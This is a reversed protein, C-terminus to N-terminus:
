KRRRRIAWAGLTVFLFGVYILRGALHGQQALTCGGTNPSVSGDPPLDCADGKDDEDSDLQDSNPITPCNDDKNVVGDGDMDGTPDIDCVDGTGNGDTDKQDPNATTACNDNKDNFGDDDTDADLPDTGNGIETDNTVGDGDADEDCVNGVDDEDLDAQDANAIIPCNDDDNVVGDGDTDNPDPTATPTPGPTASPTPVPTVDPTPTPLPTADAELTTATVTPSYFSLEPTSNILTDGQTAARYCYTTAPSLGTDAFQYALANVMTVPGIPAFSFPDCDADGRELRITFADDMNNFGGWVFVSSESLASAEITPVPLAVEPTRAEATNSYESHESGRIARVRYCYSTQASVSLDQYSLNKGNIKAIQTFDECTDTKTAREIGFDFDKDTASVGGPYDWQLLVVLISTNGSSANSAMLSTPTSLVSPTPAPTATAGPTPSPTPMGTGNITVGTFDNANGEDCLVQHADIQEQSAIIDINTLKVRSAEVEVGCGGSIGTIDWTIKSAGGDVILGWGDGCVEPKGPGAACDLDADNKIYIPAQFKIQNVNSEFRILETCMRYEPRNYGQELKRRLENFTPETPTDKENLVVCTTNDVAARSEGIVGIFLSFILLFLGFLFFRRMTSEVPQLVEAFGDYFTTKKLKAAKDCPFPFLQASLISIHM